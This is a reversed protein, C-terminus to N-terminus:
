RGFEVLNQPFPLLIAAEFTVQSLQRCAAKLERNLAEDVWVAYLRPNWFKPIETLLHFMLHRKPILQRADAETLSVFTEWYERPM